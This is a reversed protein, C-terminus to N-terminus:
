YKISEIRVINEFRLWNNLLYLMMCRFRFTKVSVSIKTTLDRKSEVKYKVGPPSTM